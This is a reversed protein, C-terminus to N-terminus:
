ISQDTAPTESAPHLDTTAIRVETGDAIITKTATVTLASGIAVEDVAAVATTALTSLSVNAAVLPVAMLIM